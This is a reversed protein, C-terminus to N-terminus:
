IRGTKLVRKYYKIYNKAMHIHTFKNLVRQRCRKSDIKDINKVARKYENYNECRFGVDETVIESMAGYTSSIVPTGSVLAEITVLGFPEECLTPFILAKSNALLKKKKTGGVMGKFHIYRSFNLRWGGAVDLEFKM